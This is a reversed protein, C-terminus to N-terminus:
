KGLKQTSNSHCVRSNQVMMLHAVTKETVKKQGENGGKKLRVTMKIKEYNLLKKNKRLELWCLFPFCNRVRAEKICDHCRRREVFSWRGPTKQGQAGGLHKLKKQSVRSFNTRGNINKTIKKTITTHLMWYQGTQLHYIKKLWQLGGKGLWYFSLPPKFDIDFNSFLLDNCIIQWRYWKSSGTALWRHSVPYNETGFM